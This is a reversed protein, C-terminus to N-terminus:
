CTELKKVNELHYSRMGSWFHYREMYKGEPFDTTNKVSSELDDLYEIAEHKRKLIEDRTSAISGHGPVMHNINHQMLIRETKELTRRYEQVSDHILPFEIDSLYDGAIWIGHPEVITYLGEKTHGPALYFTLVTGSFHTAKGDLRIVFDVEPYSMPYDRMIYHEEDFAMAQRIDKQKDRNEHFAKSAIVQAEPFAGYGIIHDYDAHTFILYLKRHGKISDVFQRIKRIESPLWNPDVIFLSNATKFCTCTTQFLASTFVTVDKQLFHMGETM